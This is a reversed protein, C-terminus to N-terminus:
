EGRSQRVIYILKRALGVPDRTDCMTYVCLVCVSVGRREREEGRTGRCNYHIFVHVDHIYLVIYDVRVARQARAVVEGSAQM